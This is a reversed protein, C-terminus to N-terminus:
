NFWVAFTWFNGQTVRQMQRFSESSMLPKDRELYPAAATGQIWLVVDLEKAGLMARQLNVGRGDDTRWFPILKEGKLVAEADDLFALWSDIIEQTVVVNPLAAKQQPGPIWERGRDTEGGILQMTRRSFHIAQLFHRRSKELKALDRIKFKATHLLAAFDAISRFSMNFRGEGQLFDYPTEVRQFILHGAHEFMERGDWALMFEALGSLVHTYAVLWQVDSYDFDITYLEAAAGTPRPNIMRLEFLVDGLREKEGTVGDGNFDLAIQTVPLTLQVEGKIGTLTEQAGALNAVFDELLRNLDDVTVVQPEPNEPVPLRLIPLGSALTDRRPGLVYIGRGLQEVASLTQAIGLAFRANEVDAGGKAILDRLHDSAILPPKSTLITAPDQPQQDQSYAPLAPLGLALAAVVLHKLRPM